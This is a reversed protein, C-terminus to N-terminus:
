NWGNASENNEGIEENEDVQDPHEPWTLEMRIAERERQLSRDLDKRYKEMMSKYVTQRYEVAKMRQHTQLMQRFRENVGLEDEKKEEVMRANDERYAKLMTEQMSINDKLAQAYDNLNSTTRKEAALLRELNKINQLAMKHGRELIEIDTTMDSIKENQEDISTDQEDIHETLYSIHRHSKFIEMEMWDIRETRSEDNGTDPAENGDGEEPHLYHCDEGFKCGSDLYPCIKHRKEERTLPKTASRKAGNAHTEPTDSM